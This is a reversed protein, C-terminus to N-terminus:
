LKNLDSTSNILMKQMENILDTPALKDLIGPRRTEIEDFADHLSSQLSGGFINLNLGQTLDPLSSQFVGDNRDFIIATNKKELSIGVVTPSSRSVLEPLRDANIIRWNGFTFKSLDLYHKRGSYSFENLLSDPFVMVNSDDLEGNCGREISTSFSNEMRLLNNLTFVDKDLELTYSLELGPVRLFAGFDDHKENPYHISLHMRMGPIPFIVYIGNATNVLEIFKFRANGAKIGFERKPM